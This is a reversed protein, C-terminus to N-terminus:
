MHKGADEGEINVAGLGTRHSIYQWGRIINTMCTVFDDKDKDKNM